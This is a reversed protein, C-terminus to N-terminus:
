VIWRTLDAALLARWAGGAEDEEEGAALTGVLMAAPVPLLGRAAKVPALYAPKWPSGLAEDKPASPPTIIEM